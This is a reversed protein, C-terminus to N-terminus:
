QHMELAKETLHEFFMKNKQGRLTDLLAWIEGGEAPLVEARFVDIDLIVPAVPKGEASFTAGQLAQTIISVTQSSPDPIVVRSVFESIAQPLGAPVTPPCTLFENFDGIPLPIRIENIYRVAIRSVSALGSVDLLTSWCTLAEDRLKDWDGYPALRCVSLGNRRLLLVFRGDESELRRGVLTNDTVNQGGESQGIGFVTQWIDTKKPYREHARNAVDDVQSLEISSDFQIDILAEKVPAKKLQRQSAVRTGHFSPRVISVPNVCLIRGSKNSVKDISCGTSSFSDNAHSLAPAPWLCQISTWSM